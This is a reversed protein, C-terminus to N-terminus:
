IRRGGGRYGMGGMGQNDGPEAPLISFPGLVVPRERHERVEYCLHNVSPSAPMECSEVVDPYITLTISLLHNGLGTDGFDTWVHNPAASRSRLAHSSPHLFHDFPSVPFRRTRHIPTVSPSVDLDM